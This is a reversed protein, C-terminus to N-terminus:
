CHALTLNSALPTPHGAPAKHGTISSREVFRVTASVVSTGAVTPAIVIFAPVPNTSRLDFVLPWNLQGFLGSNVSPSFYLVQSTVQSPLSFLLQCPTSKTLKHLMIGRSKYLFFSRVSRLWIIILSENYNNSALSRPHRASSIQGRISARELNRVTPVVSPLGIRLLALVPLSLRLHSLGLAVM